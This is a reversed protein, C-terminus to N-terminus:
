PLGRPSRRVQTSLRYQRNSGVAKKRYRFACPRGTGAYPFLSIPITEKIEGNSIYVIEYKDYRKLNEPLAIRIKMKIN